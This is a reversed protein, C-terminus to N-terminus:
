IRRHNNDVVIFFNWTFTSVSAKMKLRMLVTKWIRKKPFYERQRRTGRMVCVYVTLPSQVNSLLASSLARGGSLFTLDPPGNWNERQPSSVPFASNQHGGGQREDGGTEAAVRRDPAQAKTVPHNPSSSMTTAKRGPRLSQSLSQFASHYTHSNWVQSPM